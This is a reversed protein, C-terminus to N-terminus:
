IKKVFHKSLEKFLGHKKAYNEAGRYLTKVEKKTRCKKFADRVMQETWWVTKDKLRNILGRKLAVSYLAMDNKRVDMKYEYKKLADIIDDDSWLVRKKDMHETLDNYKNKRIFSIIGGCEKEFLTYDTYQECILKVSEYSHRIVPAM